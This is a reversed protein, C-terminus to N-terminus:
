HHDGDQLLNHFLCLSLAICESKMSLAVYAHVHLCTIGLFACICLFVNMNVAMDVVGIKDKRWGKCRKLVVM